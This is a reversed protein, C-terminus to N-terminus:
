IPIFYFLQIYFELYLGVLGSPVTIFNMKIFTFLFYIVLWCVPSYILVFNTAGVSSLVVNAFFYLTLMNFLLHSFDLHLFGSSVMRFQEGRRIGGINFKYKEFFSYDKFGKMSVLVNAAIIAVTVLHM